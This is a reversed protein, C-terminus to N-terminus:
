GTTERARAGIFARGLARASESPRSGEGVPRVRLSLVSELSRRSSPIAARGCQKRHLKRAQAAPFVLAGCSTQSSARAGNSAPWRIARMLPTRGFVAVARMAAIPAPGFNLLPREQDGPDIENRALVGATVLWECTFTKSHRQCAKVNQLAIRVKSGKLRITSNSTSAAYKKEIIM